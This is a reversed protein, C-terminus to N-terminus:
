RKSVAAINFFYVTEKSCVSLCSNTVYGGLKYNSDSSCNNPALLDSNALDRRSFDPHIFSLRHYFRTNIM